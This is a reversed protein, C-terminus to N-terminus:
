LQISSYWYYTDLWFAHWQAYSTARAERKSRAFTLQKGKMEVDCFGKHTQRRELM